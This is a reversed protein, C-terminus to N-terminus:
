FQEIERLLQAIPLGLVNYYSGNIKEIGVLGLHEQIAYSGAKDYPKYKEIYDTIIEDTLPYFTVSTKCTFVLQKDLSTLCVGTFVDHTSNSLLKLTYFADNQDKPKGLILKDLVVITDATILLEDQQLEEMFPAAKITSLYPAVESPLMTSPYDEAIDKTRIEFNLGAEKMLMQRRPSNSALIIKM